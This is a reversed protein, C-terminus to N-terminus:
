KVIYAVIQALLLSEVKFGGSCATHLVKSQPCIIIRHVEFSGAAHKLVLDSFEEDDRSRRLTLNEWFGGHSSIEYASIASLLQQSLSRGKTTM